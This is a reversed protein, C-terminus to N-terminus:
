GVVAGLGLPAHVVVPELLALGFDPGKLLEAVRGKGPCGIGLLRQRGKGVPQLCSGYVLARAIWPRAVALPAAWALVGCRGLPHVLNGPSQGRRKSGMLSEDSRLTTEDQGGVFEVLGPSGGLGQQRPIFALLPHFAANPEQFIWAKQGGRAIELFGLPDHRQQPDHGDAQQHIRGPFIAEALGELLTLRREGVLLPLGDLVRRGTPDERGTDANMQATKTPLSGEHQVAILLM